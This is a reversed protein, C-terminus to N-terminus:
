GSISISFGIDKAFGVKFDGPVPKFVVGYAGLYLTLTVTTGGFDYSVSPSYLSVMAEFCPIWGEFKASAPVNGM